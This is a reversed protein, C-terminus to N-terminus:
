IHILSLDYLCSIEGIGDEVNELLGDSGACDGFEELIMRLQFGDHHEIWDDDGGMEWVLDGDEDYFHVGERAGMGSSHCFMYDGIEYDCTIGSDIIKIEYIHGTKAFGSEYEIEYVIGDEFGMGMTYGSSCHISSGWTDCYQSDYHMMDGSSGEFFPMIDDVSFTVEFEVWDGDSIGSPPDSYLNTVTSNASYTVLSGLQDFDIFTYDQGVTYDYNYTGWLDEGRDWYFSIDIGAESEGSDDAVTSELLDLLYAPTLNLDSAKVETMAKFFEEFSLAADSDEDAWQLIDNARGDEEGEEEDSHDDHDEEPFSLTYVTHDAHIEPLDHDGEGHDGEGHDGEGHDDDGHDDHGQHDDHAHGGLM